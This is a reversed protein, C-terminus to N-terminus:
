RAWAVVKRIPAVVMAHLLWGAVAWAIIPVTTVWSGRIYPDHYAGEVIGNALQYGAFWALILGLLWLFRTPRHRLRVIAAAYFVTLVLGASLGGAYHVVAIGPRISAPDMVVCPGRPCLGVQIADAPIGIARAAFYHAAEHVVIMGVVLLVATLALGILLSRASKTAPTSM